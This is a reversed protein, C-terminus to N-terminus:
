ETHLADGVRRNRGRQVAVLALLMGFALAAAAFFALEFVPVRPRVFVGIADAYASWAVRGLVIGLPLGIVLATVVVALGAIAATARTQPRSFGLARLVAMDDSRSRIRAIIGFALVATGTVLMLAALLQPASKTRTSDIGVADLVDYGLGAEDPQVGVDQLHRTLASETVGAKRDILLHDPALDAALEPELRVLADFAIASGRDFEAGVVPVPGIGVVEFPQGADGFFSADIIDGVDAGLEDALQPHLLIEDAAEPARGELADLRIAGPSSRSRSRHQERVAADGLLLPPVFVAMSGAREVEPWTSLEEVVGAADRAGGKAAFEFYVAHDWAWGAYAPSARLRDASATYVLVGSVTAIGIVAGSIMALLAVGRRTSELGFRVGLDITPCTPLRALIRGVLTSRGPGRAPRTPAFYAAAVAITSRSSYRRSPPSSSWPRTSSSACDRSSAGATASRHSPRVRWWSRASSSSLWSAPPRRPQSGPRPGNGVPGVWRALTPEDGAGSLAYRLLAPTVVFIGALGGLLAVLWLAGADQRLGREVDAEFDAYDIGVDFAPVDDTRLDAVTAGPALVVAIDVGGDGLGAADM